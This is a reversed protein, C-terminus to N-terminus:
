TNQPFIEKHLDEIKKKSGTIAELLSANEDVDKIILVNGMALYKAVIRPITASSTEEIIRQLILYPLGQSM